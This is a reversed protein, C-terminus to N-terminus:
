LSIFGGLRGAKAMAYRSRLIWETELLVLLNVLVPEGNALERDILRRAKEYQPHDDRTLYRVLINTDLGLM